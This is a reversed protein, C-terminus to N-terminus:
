QRKSDKKSLILLPYAGLSGSRHVHFFERASQLFDKTTYQARAAHSQAVARTADPLTDFELRASFICRETCLRAVRRLIERHSHCATACFTSGWFFYHYAGLLLVTQFPGGWTEPQGAVDALSAFHFAANAIHLHQRVKESTLVFPQHVDIGVAVRCTPRQAAELVFFGRCCAIDLLSELPRPYLREVARARQRLTRGAILRGQIIRYTHNSPYGRLLPNIEAEWRGVAPDHTARVGGKYRQRLATTRGALGRVVTIARHYLNATTAGVTM